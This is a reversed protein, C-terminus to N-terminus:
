GAHHLHHLDCNITEHIEAIAKDALGHTYVDFTTSLNAHGMVYQLSTPSLNRNYMNTCFTHRLIHPSVKISTGYAQNYLATLNRLTDTFNSPELISGRKTIAIFGTLGDITPTNMEKARAVVRTLVPHAKESIPIIRVGSQTKPASIKWDKKGSGSLQHTVSIEKKEFDIDDITLGRFEGIRLGTELLIIIYDYTYSWAKDKIFKLFTEQESVTLAQRKNKAPLFNLQYDFPNKAIIDDDVALRCARKCLSHITQATSPSYGNECLETLWLKTESVKLTRVPKQAIKYRAVTAVNLSMVRKSSFKLHTSIQVLRSLLEQLTINNFAQVGKTECVVIEKEKIRLDQLTPAYVCRRAGWKDTYRYMYSLDKRQSEGLRLVRGKNDTRKAAM